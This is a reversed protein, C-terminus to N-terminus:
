LKFEFQKTITSGCLVTHLIMAHTINHMSYVTTCGTKHITIDDGTVGTSYACNEYERDRACVTNMSATPM